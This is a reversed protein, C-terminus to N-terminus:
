LADSIYAALAYTADRDLSHRARDYRRTTRPDAHGMFDQVDRLPVGADLALTAATHRLSHPSVNKDIGAARTLRRIVRMADFRDLREGDNSLLLPGDTRSDMHAELAAVTRPALARTWRKGNKRVMKLVRHGRETSLDSINAACSESVRLGNLALLSVLAMDRPGSQEAARLIARLEDRDLGLTQSEDGVRPRRVREVPNAEVVGEDLLFTYWGAITSLRRAVTARSRGAQECERAFLDIAPRRIALPDLNHAECWGFWHRLDTAYAARTRESSFGALFAGALTDLRGRDAPTLAVAERTALDGPAM